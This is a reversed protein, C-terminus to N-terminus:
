DTFAFTSMFADFLERVLAEEGPAAVTAMEFVYGLEGHLVPVSLVYSNEDDYAERYGVIVAPADAVAYPESSAVVAGLSAYTASWTAAFAEQTTVEAAPESLSISFFGSADPPSFYATGFGVEMEWDEPYAVSYPADTPAFSTWVPDPRTVTVPTELDIFEFAIDMEAEVADSGPVDQVWSATLSFGAPTGDAEAYLALDADLDRMSPDAGSGIIALTAAAFGKPDTPVLRHVSRGFQETTGGDILGQVDELASALSDDGTEADSPPAVLIWPGGDTSTYVDGDLQIQAVHTLLEGAGVSLDSTANGGAFRYDGAIPMEISIGGTRIVMTGTVEATVPLDPDSIQALFIEAIDPSSSPTAEDSPSPTATPSATCAALMAAGIVVALTRAQTIRSM